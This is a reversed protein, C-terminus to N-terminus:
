KERLRKQRGDPLRAVQAAFPREESFVRRAFAHGIQGVVYGLVVAALASGLEAPPLKGAILALPLGLLASLVLGPLLYGYIDYFNFRDIM